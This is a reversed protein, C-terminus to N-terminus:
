GARQSESGISWALTFHRLGSADREHEVLYGASVLANLAAIFRAKGVGCRESHLASKVPRKQTFDLETTLYEYVRRAPRSLARDRRFAVEAPYTM